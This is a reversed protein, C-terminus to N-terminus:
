FRRSLSLSLVRGPDPYANYKGPTTTSSVGYGFYEKDLANNILVDLNWRKGGLMYKLDATTYAPIKEGFTNNQDNDFYQSGVYNLSASVRSATGTQWHTTLSASNRPVLPVTNGAYAGDRFTAQMYTYSAKIGVDDSVAQQLSFEAGRRRTPDLNINTFTLPDFHIENDLNMYYLNGRFVTQGGKIGFGMNYQFGTQPKLPSFVRKFLPDYEFIEDVTAFRVAREIGASLSLAEGSQHHVGLQWMTERYDDRFAPAESDFAGPATADYRDTARQSVAQIRAGATINTANTIRTRNSAYLARSTQDIALRHIPTSITSPNLARDSDYRSRYIDIGATASSGPGVGDYAMTLRPTISVTALGTDYYDSFGGGYDYYAQQNNNRYGADIVLEAHDSLYRTVGASINLGDQNAYDLPTSTGNRDTALEDISSGPDVSRAGPLGLEQDNLTLALFWEGTKLPTRMGLHVNRQQLENNDRYGDSNITSLTALLHTTGVTTAANVDLQRQNFSAITLGLDVVAQQGAAKKSIINIVGGGASDGYLVSGGGRIIEIREINALPIASFDVAAMDVDNLRRGDVLILTNQKATAGFGRMDVSARTANNGYLNRSMVGAETALLEPLTAAASAAIDDVTIITIFGAQQEINDLRTATVIIRQDDAAMIFPSILVTALM